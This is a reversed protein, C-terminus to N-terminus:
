PARKVRIRIDDIEVVQGAHIKCTKRLEQQGDVYVAGSAVIAKGAGGSDCLGTLKLLQNLEVHEHRDDLDFDISQM